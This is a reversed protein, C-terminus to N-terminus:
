RFWHQDIDIFGYPMTLGWHTLIQLTWKNFLYDLLFMLHWHFGEHLVNTMILKASYSSINPSHEWIALNMHGVHPGGPDQRDWTPGMYAGHIKSDRNNYFPGRADSSLDCWIHGRKSVHISKIGAHIHLLVWWGTHFQNLTFQHLTTRELSLGIWSTSQSKANRKM